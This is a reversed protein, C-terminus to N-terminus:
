AMTKSARPKPKLIKCESVGYQLLAIAFQDVDEEDIDSQIFYPDFFIIEKIAERIADLQADGDGPNNKLQKLFLGRIRKIIVESNEFEKKIVADLEIYDGIYDEFIESYVPANNYSLKEYIETPLELSFEFNSDLNSHQVIKLLQFMKTKVLPRKYGQINILNGGVSVQTNGESQSGIKQSNKSDM